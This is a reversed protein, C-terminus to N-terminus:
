ATEETIRGASVRFVRDAVKAVQAEHTIVLAAPAGDGNRFSSLLTALGAADLNNSPEDLVILRPQGVLARALAVRQIQGGSLLPGNAFAPTDLAIETGEGLPGAGVLELAQLADRRDLDPRGLTINQAVTGAVLIPDQTLVGIQRRLHVIDLEDYDFGNVSICGSSPRYLGLLLNALTTKGSGNAGVLAVVEGPRLEISVSRLVPTDADYEFSVDEIAITGGLDTQRTGTYPGPEDVDLLEYTRDLSIRGAVIFPMSAVLRGLPQRILAVGAYFAFLQGLTMREDIVAAGGLTLIIIVWAAIVVQNADVHLRQRIGLRSTAVALQGLGVDQDERVQPEIGLIHTERITRLSTFVTKSFENVSERYDLASSRLSRHTLRNVGYVVPVCVLTAAFLTMNVVALVALIGIASIMAPIATAYGNRVMREIRESDHVLLDHADTMPHGDHYRLSLWYFKDYVSQQLREVTQTSFRLIWVSGIVGALSGVIQLALIALALGVLASARNEVIASDFVERVLFPVPIVAAFQLLAM